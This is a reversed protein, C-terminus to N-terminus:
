SQWQLWYYYFDDDDDDYNFNNVFNLAASTFRYISHSSKWIFFAVFMLLFIHHICNCQCDIIRLLPWLPSASCTFFFYSSIFFNLDFSLPPFMTPAISELATISNSIVTISHNIWFLRLSALSDQRFVM